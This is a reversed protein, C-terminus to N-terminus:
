DCDEVLTAIDLGLRTAAAAGASIARMRSLADPVDLSCTTENDFTIGDPADDGWEPADGGMIEGVVQWTRSEFVTPVPGISRLTELLTEAARPAQISGSQAFSPLPEAGDWALMCEAYDLEPDRVACAAAAATLADRLRSQRDTADPASSWRGSDVPVLDRCASSVLSLGDMPRERMTAIVSRGFPEHSHVVVLSRRRSHAIRLWASGTPVVLTDISVGCGAIRHRGLSITELLVANEATRLGEIAHLSASM